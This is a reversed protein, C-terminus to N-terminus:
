KDAVCRFGTHELGTDPSSKMRASVRYGKCYSANCMFSGGRLVRKPVTSEVPDNSQSPGQPNTAISNRSTSYYDSDYWDSCWEWVNGAMDFLGYDNSAFSKVAALGKYGDWGTNDNPFDGQWTNAKPKGAEIPESGWPYSQSAKGGRAAFEWEAETPLRKGAWKAYASADDWSVHVVPYNDKGEISSGPGQPHRWDAGRKWTWWQSPDALSVVHQLCQFVLSSAALLSDPPRVTGPPLQKKMEEWDISKEATTIYGTANVFRQFEANTVETQDIWFGSLRVKHVPYEDSSGDDDSSGMLYEGGEIWAMGEHSTKTDTRKVTDISVMRIRSPIKSCCSAVLDDQNQIELNARGSNLKTATCRAFFPAVIVVAIWTRFSKPRLKRLYYIPFLSVVQKMHSM